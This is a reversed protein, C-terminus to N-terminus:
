WTESMRWPTRETSPDILPSSDGPVYSSKMAAATRLVKVASEAIVPSESM